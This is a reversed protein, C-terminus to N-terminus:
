TWSRAAWTGCAPWWRRWIRWGTTTTRAATVSTPTSASPCRPTASTATPTAAPARGPPISGGASCRAMSPPPASSTRRSSRSTASSESRAGPEDREVPTEVTYEPARGALEEASLTEVPQSLMWRHGSPDRLTANRNGHFQDAPEREGTAGAAIARAYVADVDEVHLYLTVPTGGLTQPSLIGLEPHEDSLMVTNGGITVEAHGVRGDDATMRLTEVAGFAVRYFDIAAAADHACLYVSVVPQGAATADTAAPQDVGAERLGLAEVLRGRLEVAFAERPAIPVVPQRLTDLPDTAM